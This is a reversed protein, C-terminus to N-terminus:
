HFKVLGETHLSRFKQASEIVAEAAIEAEKLTNLHSWSFRLTSGAHAADFGMAELVHTPHLAGAHCASGAACAVGKEDLLILMAAADIGPFCLSSTNPLRLVASGNLRTEPLAAMVRTEFADRM